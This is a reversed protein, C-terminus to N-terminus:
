GPQMSVTADLSPLKRPLPRSDVVPGTVGAKTRLVEFADLNDVYRTGM